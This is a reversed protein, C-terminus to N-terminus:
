HHDASILCNYIRSGYSSSWSPGWYIYTVINDIFKGLFLDAVSM